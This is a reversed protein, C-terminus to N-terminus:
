ATSREVALDDSSMEVYLKFDPLFEDWVKLAQDDTGTRNFRSQFTELFESSDVGEATIQEYLDNVGITGDFFRWMDGSVTTGDIIAYDTHAQGFGRDTHLPKSVVGKAGQRLVYTKGKGNADNLKITIDRM